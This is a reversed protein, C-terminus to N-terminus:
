GCLPRLQGATPLVSAGLACPFRLHTTSRSPLWPDLGTAHPLRSLAFRCHGPNPTSAAEVGLSRKPGPSTHGHNCLQSM